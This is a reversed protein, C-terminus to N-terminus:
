PTAIISSAYRAVRPGLFHNPSLILKDVKGLQIFPQLLAGFVMNEM